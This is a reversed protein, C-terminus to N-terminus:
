VISNAREIVRIGFDNLFHALNAKEATKVIRRDLFTILMTGDITHAERLLLPNNYVTFALIEVDGIEVRHDQLQDNESLSSVNEEDELIAAKWKEIRKAIKSHIDEFLYFKKELNKKVTM